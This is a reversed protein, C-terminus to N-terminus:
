DLLGVVTDLMERATQILRAAAQYAWQYELLRVMEEDLNVHSTSAKQDEMQGVVMDQYESTRYAASAEVGLGAVASSWAREPSENGVVPADRMALVDMVARNDGPNLAGDSSVRGSGLLTADGLLEERVSIDVSGTGVFLGNVGLVAMVNSTDQSIAFLAGAEARLSLTGDAGVSADLLGGNDPDANIQDVLDELTTGSDVVAELSGLVLSPDSSDYLWIRIQGPQIKSGFPISSGILAEAPDVQVKSSLERFPSVPVSTSLEKNLSWILASAFGDLRDLERLVVQDRMRLMGGLSGSQIQETIVVKNGRADEWIVDTLGEEPSETRLQWSHSEMVLAMGGPGVVSLEGRDGEWFQVNLLGSLEDLAKDSMDRFDNANQGSAEARMIEVNLQAISGTLENVREVSIEVSRNLQDRMSVLKERLGKIRSALQQAAERVAVRETTGEPHLSLDEWASWFSQLQAGLDSDSLGSYVAELQRYYAAQASLSGQTSLENRLQIGLFRDYLREITVPRVGRGLQGPAYNQPRAPELVLRQRSYGESNVNAINHSTVGIGLQQAHLSWQAIDLITHIGAM